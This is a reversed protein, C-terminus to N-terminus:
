DLLEKIRLCCITLNKGGWNESRTDSIHKNGYLLASLMFFVMNGVGALFRGVGSDLSSFLCYHCIVIMLIAVVRIYDLSYNRNAMM